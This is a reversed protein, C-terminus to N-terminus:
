LEAKCVKRRGKNSTCSKEVRRRLRYKSYEDGRDNKIKEFKAKIVKNRCRIRENFSNGCGDPNPASLYYEHIDRIESVFRDIVQQNFNTPWNTVQAKAPLVFCVAAACVFILTKIM